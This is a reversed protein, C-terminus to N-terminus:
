SHYNFDPRLNRAEKLYVNVIEDQRKGTNWHILVRVCLPLSGPVDIEQCCFLAIHAWGLDRAARAPFAANLDPTTSFIASAIDEQGMDNASIIAELLEKTAQIIQDPDNSEVTTAGRIGRCSM